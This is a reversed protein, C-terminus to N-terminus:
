PFGPNQDAGAVFARGAGRLVICRVSADGRLPVLAAAIARATPVDLVNLVEPRNIILTAIGTAPDRLLEALAM